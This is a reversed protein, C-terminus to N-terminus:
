SITFINVLYNIILSSVEYLLHSNDRLTIGAQEKYSRKASQKKESEGTTKQEKKGSNKDNVRKV